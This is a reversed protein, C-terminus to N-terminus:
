GPREKQGATCGESQGTEHGRIKGGGRGEGAYFLAHHSYVGAVRFRNGSVASLQEQQPQDEGDEGAHAKDVDTRCGIHQVDPHSLRSVAEVVM